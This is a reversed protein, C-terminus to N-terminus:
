FAQLVPSCVRRRQAPPSAPVAVVCDGVGALRHPDVTCCGSAGSQEIHRSIGAGISIVGLLVPLTLAGACALRQWASGLSHGPAPPSAAPVGLARAASEWTPCRALQGPLLAGVAGQRGSRAAWPEQGACPGPAWAPPGGLAPGSSQTRGALNGGGQTGWRSCAPPGALM